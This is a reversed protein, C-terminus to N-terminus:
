STRGAAAEYVALTQASNVGLLKSGDQCSSSCTSPFEPPAWDRWHCDAVTIISGCPTGFTDAGDRGFVLWNLHFLLFRNVNTEAEFIQSRLWRPNLGGHVLAPDIEINIRRTHSRTLETRCISHRCPENVDFRM